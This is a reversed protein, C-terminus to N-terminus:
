RWASPLLYEPGYIYILFYLYYLGGLTVALIILEGAYGAHKRGKFYVSSLLKVILPSVLFSVGAIGVIFLLLIFATRLYDDAIFNSKYVLIEEVINIVLICVPLVFYKKINRKHLPKPRKRHKQAMSTKPGAVTCGSPEAYWRKM